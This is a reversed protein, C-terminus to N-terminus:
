LEFPTRATLSRALTAEDTYELENGVSVGRAIQTVKVDPATRALMRYIYFNTTDAEITAGTALIVEKINEDAVRQALSSIQLMDPGIGDVPSILGGLVHYVGFYQRTNEIIMVDKVSEVVCVVSADRRPSSCIPCLEQESINHCRRCYRIGQRMNIIAQGIAEAETADRRLLHLAFRLATKRGVGPLRSLASVANELLSSSFEQEM